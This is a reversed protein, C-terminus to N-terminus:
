IFTTERIDDQPEIEKIEIEELERFYTGDEVDREKQICGLELLRAWLAVFDPNALIPCFSLILERIKNSLDTFLKNRPQGKKERLYKGIKSIMEVTLMNSDDKDKFLQCTNGFFLVVYYEPNVPRDVIDIM